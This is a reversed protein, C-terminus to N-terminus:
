QKNITEIGKLIQIDNVEDPFKTFDIKKAEEVTMIVEIDPTLGEDNIDRRNPTLYRRTTLKLVGGNPLSFMSQVVGKGYTQEGIVTGSQHDQIAGTLIESASATNGNVLVVLKKNLFKSDDVSLTQVDKEDRGVEYLVVGGPIFYKAVERSAEVLGGGNDRLDLIISDPLNPYAALLQALEKATTDTFSTIEIYLTNNNNILSGSVSPVKLQERIISFELQEGDRYIKLKVTTGQEGRVKAAVEEVSLGEASVGDIELIIDGAKLGAKAAPSNDYVKIGKVLKTNKDQALLMGVGAYVGNLQNNYAIWEKKTFVTSYPDELSSVLGKSLGEIMAGSDPERYFNNQIIRYTQFATYAETPNKFLVSVAILSILGIFAFASLITLSIVKLVYSLINKEKM